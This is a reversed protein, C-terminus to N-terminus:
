SKCPAISPIYIFNPFGSHGPYNEVNEWDGNDKKYQIGVSAPDGEYTANFNFNDFQAWGGSDSSTFRDNYAGRESAYAVLNKNPPLGIVVLTGSYKCMSGSTPM